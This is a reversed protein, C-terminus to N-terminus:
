LIFTKALWDTQRAQQYPNVFGLSEEVAQEGTVELMLQVTAHSQSVHALFDDMAVSGQALGNHQDLVGSNNHLHLTALYPRLTDFWITPNLTSFLNTHGVDLCARVEPRDIRELLGLHLSPKPEMFNELVLTLGSNACGMTEVLNQFYTALADAWPEYCDAVTYIPTWQTHLVLYRAKLTQAMEVSRRYHLDSVRQIQKVLSVPNMDIVPGHLSLQGNLEALQPQLSALTKAPVQLAQPPIFVELELGTQYQNALAVARPTAIGKPAIFVTQVM